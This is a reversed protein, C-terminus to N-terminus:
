KKAPRSSTTTSKVTGGPLTAGALFPLTPNLAKVLDNLNSDKVAKLIPTPNVPLGGHPHIEFHLHAPTGGANGTTGVFGVIQGAEVVTGDVIGVAFQSLHAYYYATGDKDTLWLRNGGLPAVGVSTVVGRKTARLPTGAPAFIDVGQHLHYFKTGKMRDAGYTDIFSAPLQVPFAFGDLAIPIGQTISQLQADVKAFEVSLIQQDSQLQDVEKQRETVLLDFEHQKDKLAQANQRYAEVMVADRRQAQSVFDARRSLTGVDKASLLLNLYGVAEGTYQRLARDRMELTAADRLANLRAIDRKTSAGQNSLAVLASQAEVVRATAADAKVRAIEVEKRQAATLKALAEKLTISSAPAAYPPAPPVVVNAPPTEQLADDNTVDGVQVDSGPPLTVVAGDVAGFDDRSAPRQGPPMVTSGAQIASSTSTTAERPTLTSPPFEATGVPVPAPLSGTTLTSGPVTASPDVVGTILPGGIGVPAGSITTTTTSSTSTTANPDLEQARSPAVVVVAIVLVGLAVNRAWASSRVSFAM